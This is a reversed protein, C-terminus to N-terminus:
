KDLNRSDNQVSYYHLYWTRRALITKKYFRLYIYSTYFQKAMMYYHIMFIFKFYETNCM